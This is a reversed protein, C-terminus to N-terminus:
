VLSEAADTLNMLSFISPGALIVWRRAIRRLDQCHERTLRDEQIEAFFDIAAKHALQGAVRREKQILVKLRDILDLLKVHALWSLLGGKAVTETAAKFADRIRQDTSPAQAPFSTARELYIWAKLGTSFNEVQIEPDRNVICHFYVETKQQLKRRSFRQLSIARSHKLDSSSLEGAPRCIYCVKTCFLCKASGKKRSCVRKYKLCAECKNEKSRKDAIILDDMNTTNPTCNTDSRGNENALNKTPM